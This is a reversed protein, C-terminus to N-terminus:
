CGAGHSADRGGDVGESEMPGRGSEEVRAELRVLRRRGRGEPRRSPRPM